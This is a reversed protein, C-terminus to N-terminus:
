FSNSKLCINGPITNDGSNNASGSKGSTSSDSKTGIHVSKRDLLLARTFITRYIFTNHMCASMIRVRSHKKTRSRDNMIQSAREGTLYLEHELRTLLFQRTPRRQHKGIACQFINIKNYPLMDKGVQLTATHSKM